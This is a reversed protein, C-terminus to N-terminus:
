SRKDESLEEGLPKSLGAAKIAARCVSYLKEEM